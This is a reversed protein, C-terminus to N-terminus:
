VISGIGAICDVHARIEANSITVGEFKDTSDPPASPHSFTGSGDLTTDDHDLNLIYYNDDDLTVYNTITFFASYNGGYQKDEIDGKPVTAILTDRADWTNATASWLEIGWDRSWDDRWNGCDLWLVWSSPIDPFDASAPAFHISTRYLNAFYTPDRFDARFIIWHNTGTSPPATADDEVNECCTTWNVDSGSKRMGYLVCDSDDADYFWYEWGACDENRRTHPGITSDSGHWETGTFDFPDAGEIGRVSGTFTEFDTWSAHRFPVTRQPGAITWDRIISPPVGIGARGGRDALEQDAELSRTGRGIPDSAEIIRKGKYYYSSSTGSWWYRAGKSGPNEIGM